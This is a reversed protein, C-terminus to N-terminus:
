IHILSLDRQANPWRGGRAAPRGIVQQRGEHADPPAGAQGHNGPEAADAPWGPGRQRGLQQRLAPADADAVDRRTGIIWLRRRRHPAGLNEAGIDIVDVRYGARELEAVVWELGRRALGPVNEAACWVPRVEGVIRIYEGFLQGRPDDLGAGTGAVSFSQCPPSGVVVSPLYGLRARLADATVTHVDDFM